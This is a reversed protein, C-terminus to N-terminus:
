RVDIPAVVDEDEGNLDLSFDFDGLDFTKKSNIHKFYSNTIDQFPRLLNLVVDVTSVYVPKLIKNITENNKISDPTRRFLQYM